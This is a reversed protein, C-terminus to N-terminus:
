RWRVWFDMYFLWQEADRRKESQLLVRSEFGDQCSPLSSHQWSCWHQLHGRKPPMSSTPPNEEARDMGGEHLRHRRLFVAGAESRAPVTHM